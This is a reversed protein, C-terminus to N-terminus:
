ISHGWLHPCAWDQARYPFLAPTKYWECFHTYYIRIHHPQLQIKISSLPVSIYFWSSTADWKNGLSTGRQAVPQWTALPPWAQLRYTFRKGLLHELLSRLGTGAGPNFLSVLSPRTGSCLQETLSVPSTCSPLVDGTKVSTSSGGYCYVASGQQQSLFSHWVSLGQHHGCVHLMWHCWPCSSSATGALSGCLKDSRALPVMARLPLLGNKVSSLFSGLATRRLIEDPVTTVSRLPLSPKPCPELLTAVGGKCGMLLNEGKPHCCNRTGVTSRCPWSSSGWWSCTNWEKWKSSSALFSHTPNWFHETAM